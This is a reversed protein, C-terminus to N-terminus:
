SYLRFEGASSQRQGVHGADGPLWGQTLHKTKWIWEEVESGIWPVTLDALKGLAKLVVGKVIKSLLRGARLSM